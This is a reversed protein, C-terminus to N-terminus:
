EAAKEHLAEREYHIMIDELTFKPYEKRLGKVTLISGM